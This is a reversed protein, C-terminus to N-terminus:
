ATAWLDDSMHRKLLYVKIDGNEIYFPVVEIVPMVTLRAVQNFIELPLKGPEIKALINSLDSNNM